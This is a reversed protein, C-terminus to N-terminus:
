KSDIESEWVYLVMRHTIWLAYSIALIRYWKFCCEHKDATYMWVLSISHLYSLAIDCFLVRYTATYGLLVIGRRNSGYHSVYSRVASRCSLPYFTVICTHKWCTPHLLIDGMHYLFYVTRDRIIPTDQYSILNIIVWIYNSCRRDASSWSCRWERNLTQSWYITFLCSCSSVLFFKKHNPTDQILSKVTARIYWLM